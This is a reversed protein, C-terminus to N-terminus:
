AAEPGKDLLFIVKKLSTNCPKALDFHYKLLIKDIYAPQFLKLM